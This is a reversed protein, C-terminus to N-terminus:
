AHRFRRSALYRAAVKRSAQDFESYVAIVEGETLSDALYRLSGRKGRYPPITWNNALVHQFIALVHKCARHQGSPDKIMPTSATGRPRGYLYDGNKAWHEPGQWQWFPCSCSVAVHVKNLDKVNGKRKAKLRVRYAQKSGQVDFLWMANRADVRALRFKLGESRARLDPGCGDRIETIRAATRKMHFLRQLLKDLGKVTLTDWGRKQLWQTVQKRSVQGSKFKAFLPSHALDVLAKQCEKPMGRWTLAGRKEMHDKDNPYVRSGPNSDMVEDLYDQLLKDGPKRDQRQRHDKPDNSRDYYTEPDMDPPRKEYVGLDALVFRKAVKEVLHAYDEPLNVVGYHHDDDQPDILHPEAPRGEDRDGYDDDHQIFGTDYVFQNVLRQDIVLLEDEVMQSLDSKGTLEECQAKFAPDDCDIGLMEASSRLVEETLEGWADLGIETDILRFMEDIDEVSLFVVGAMFVELRASELSTVNEGPRNRYFTILGTMGSISRIHGLDFKPGIVFAIDPATLVEGRRTKFREPHKRRIQQQKQFAPNKSLRRLRGLARQRNRARNRRYLQTPKPERGRYKARLGISATKTLSGDLWSDFLEDLDNDDEVVPPEGNQHDFVDDLHERVAVIDTEKFFVVEEFFTELPATYRAGDVEYHVTFLRSVEILLGERESPFHLFPIPQYLGATKAKDRQRQSREAITKAGGGPRRTFRKPDKNRRQRDMKFRGNNKLRRHRRKVKRLIPGRMRNYRKHFYIYARGKQERQRKAGPYQPPYMGALIADEWEDDWEDDWMDGMANLGPRRVPTNRAESDDPPSQEGPIGKTRAKDKHISKGDGSGGSEPPMNFMMPGLPKSKTWPPDPLGRTKYKGTDTDSKNPAPDKVLTRFGSMDEVTKGTRPIPCSEPRPDPLGKWFTTVINIAGRGHGAFVVVLDSLKSDVWEVTEGRALAETYHNYQWAKQSKWDNLQKQFNRLSVRLDGVTVGRLDMRYQAHPTIRMQRFLGVGREVEINYIVAAAPNPLNRGSEVQDILKDKMGPSRVEDRIREVM